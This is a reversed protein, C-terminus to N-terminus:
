FTLFVEAMLPTGALTQHMLEAIILTYLLVLVAGALYVRYHAIWPVSHSNM